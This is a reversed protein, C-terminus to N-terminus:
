LRVYWRRRDMHWAIAFFFLVNAIAFLLSANIPSALPTFLGEYVATKLSTSKGEFPVQIIGMFKALLGSLVFMALANRGYIAFPGAFRNWRLVDVLWYCCAFVVYALGATFVSYSTTWLKKNIPMWTSLMLGAFILLAGTFFLWATKRDNSSPTRLIEGAFIGFLVTAIAPLTSIIGEPDWTRSQAWMHGQLILGDVYKAFNAEESLNGAGVGPVPYYMMLLWYSSLLAITWGIRQRANSFLFISAAVLYCIGIRQLVGPIRVTDFRFYPILNLLLGIAFILFSRRLVHVWLRRKDDGNAIRKAFSFTVSVGVMWLFFPFVLDTFTWGHWAAHELPPYVATWTGPNNVLIMAAITGGRFVDLSLLRQAAVPSESSAIAQPSRVAATSEQV